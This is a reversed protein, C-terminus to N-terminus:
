AKVTNALTLKKNLFKTMTFNVDKVLVLKNMKVLTEIVLNKVNEKKLEMYAKLVNKFM